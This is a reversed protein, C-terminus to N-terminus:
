AELLTKVAALDKRVTGAVQGALMGEFMKLLGSARGEFHYAFETGGEVQTCSMTFHGNIPGASTTLTLANPPDYESVESENIVMRGMFKSRDRLTSGLGMPGEPLLESSILGKQYRHSNAPNSVFDFVEKCSSNIVISESVTIM